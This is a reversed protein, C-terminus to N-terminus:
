GETGGLIPGRAHEFAAIELRCAEDGHLSAIHQALLALARRIVQSQSPKKLTLAGLALRLYSLDADAAPTLVSHIIRRDFRDRKPGRMTAKTTKM